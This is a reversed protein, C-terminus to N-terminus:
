FNFVVTEQVLGWLHTPFHVKIERSFKSNTPLYFFQSYKSVFTTPLPGSKSFIVLILFQAVTQSTLANEIIFKLESPAKRKKGRKLSGEPKLM